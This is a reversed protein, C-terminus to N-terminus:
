CPLAGMLPGRTLLYNEGMLFNVTEQLTQLEMASWGDQSRKDPEKKEKKTRRIMDAGRVWRSVKWFIIQEMGHRLSLDNRM